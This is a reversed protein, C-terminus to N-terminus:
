LYLSLYLYCIIPQFGELGVTIDGETCVPNPSDGEAECLKEEVDRVKWKYM